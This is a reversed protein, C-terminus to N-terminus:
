SLEFYYIRDDTNIFSMLPSLVKNTTRELNVSFYSNYKNKLIETYKIFSYLPYLELNTLLNNYITNTENSLYINIRKKYIDNNINSIKIVIDNDLIIKKNLSLQYQLIDQKLTRNFDGGIYIEHIITNELNKIKNLINYIPDQVTGLIDPINYNNLITKLALDNKYIFTYRSKQSYKVNIILKKKGTKICLFINYIYNINDHFINKININEDITYLTKRYLIINFNYTDDYSDDNDNMYISFQTLYKLTIINNNEILKGTKIVSKLLNLFKKNCEQILIFHYYRMFWNIFKLLNGYKGKINKGLKTADINNEINVTAVEDNITILDHDTIYPINLLKGYYEIRNCAKIMKNFKDYYPLLSLEIPPPPLKNPMPLYNDLPPYPPPLPYISTFLFLLINIILSYIVILPHNYLQTNASIISLINPPKSAPKSLPIISPIQPPSPPKSQPPPPYRPPAPPKSQPPPPYRPPAPTIKTEMNNYNNSIHPIVLSQKTPKYSPPPPITKLLCKDCKNHLYNNINKHFCFVCSDM